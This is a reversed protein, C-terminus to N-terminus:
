HYPRERGSRTTRHSLLPSDSVLSDAMVILVIPNSRALCTKTRGALRKLFRHRWRFATDRCVEVEYAAQRVTMGQRMCEAYQIFKEKHKLRSLPTGTAANSTKKCDRCMVRQLGNRTGNRVVHLSGCHRCALPGSCEIARISSREAQTTSIAARLQEMQDATLGKLSEVLKAFQAKRM